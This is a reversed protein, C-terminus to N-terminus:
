QEVELPPRQPKLLKTFRSMRKVVLGQDQGWYGHKYWTVKSEKARM